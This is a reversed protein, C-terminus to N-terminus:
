PGYGGGLYGQPFAGQPQGDPGATTGRGSIRVYVIAMAVLYVPVTALFGVCCALAGCFGLLIGVLTLVFLNVKHGDTRALSEKIAEIPGMGADVVYYPALMVALAVIVGPVCALFLGLLTALSTLLFSATYPLFHTVGAFLEGFEPSQGRAVQITMRLLGPMFLCGVLISVFTCVGSAIMAELSDPQLVNALTLVTPVYSVVSSIAFYVFYAGVLVAWSRQFGAWALSLVEGVSWPRPDGVPVPGQPM